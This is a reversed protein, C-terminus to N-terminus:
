ILEISQYSVQKAGIGEFDVIYFYCCAIFEVRAIVGVYGKYSNLGKVKDGVKLSSM